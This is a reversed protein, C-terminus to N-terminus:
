QLRDNSCTMRAQILSRESNLAPTFNQRRALGVKSDIGGQSHFAHLMQLASVVLISRGEPLISPASPLAAKTSTIWALSFVM